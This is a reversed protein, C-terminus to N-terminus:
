QNKLIKKSMEWLTTERTKKDLVISHNNIAIVRDFNKKILNLDHINVLITKGKQKLEKLLDIVEQATHADLSSTPEDALVLEVDRVLLKAIEVRQQQGGSLDSVRYFAKDLINLDDLTKFIKYKQSKTLISLFKMIVNNYNIFSRQVNEYVNDTLILNPKQTLFGIKTITNKREKKSMKSYKQDFICVDGAIPKIADVLAKFLTSKGAGSPGIIAVMEGKNISFNINKLITESNQSYTLDVNKIEIIKNM